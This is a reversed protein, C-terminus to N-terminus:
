RHSGARVEQAARRADIRQQREAAAAIAVARDFGIGNEM